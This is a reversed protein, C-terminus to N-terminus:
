TVEQDIAIAIRAFEDSVKGYEESVQEQSKTALCFLKSSATSILVSLPSEPDVRNVTRWREIARSSLGFLEEKWPKRNVLQLVHRQAAVRNNFESM